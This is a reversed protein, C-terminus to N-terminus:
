SFYGETRQVYDMDPLSLIYPTKMSLNRFDMVLSMISKM